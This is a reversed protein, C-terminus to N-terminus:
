MQTDIKYGAGQQSLKNTGSPKQVRKLSKTRKM